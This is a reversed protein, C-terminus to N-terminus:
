KWEVTNRYKVENSLNLSIIQMNQRNYWSTVVGDVLEYSYNHEDSSTLVGATFLEERVKAPLFRSWKGFYGQIELWEFLNRFKVPLMISSPVDSPEYTIMLDMNGKVYHTIKSLEGDKWEFVKKLEDGNDFLVLHGEKDYEYLTFKPESILKSGGYKYNYTTKKVIRGNSDLDYDSDIVITDADATHPYMCNITNIRGATYTFNMSELFVEKNQDNVNYYKWEVIRGLADYSFTVRQVKRYGESDEKYTTVQSVRKPLTPVISNDGDKCSTLSNMVGCFTLIAALM